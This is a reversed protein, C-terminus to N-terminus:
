GKGGDCREEGRGGEGLERGEVEKVWREEGKGGEGVDGEVEKVGGRGEM